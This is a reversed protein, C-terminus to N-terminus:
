VHISTSRGAGMFHGHNGKTQKEPLRNLAFEAAREAAPPDLNTLAAVVYGSGPCIELEVNMGPAGGGHGFCQIFRASTDSEREKIIGTPRTATSEEAKMFKFGGTM